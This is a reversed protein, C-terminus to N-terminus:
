QARVSWARPLPLTAEGGAPASRCRGPAGNRRAAAAARAARAAPRTASAWPYRDRERSHQRRDETRWGLDQRLNCRDRRSFNSPGDAEYHLDLDVMSSSLGDQSCQLLDKGGAESSARIQLKSHVNQAVHASSTKPLTQGFQPPPNTGLGTRGAFFQFASLKRPLYGAPVLTLCLGASVAAWATNEAESLSRGGSCLYPTASGRM